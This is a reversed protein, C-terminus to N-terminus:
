QKVERETLKVVLCPSQQAIRNTMLTEMLILNFQHIM